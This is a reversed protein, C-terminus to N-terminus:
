PELMNGCHFALSFFVLIEQQKCLQAMHFDVSNICVTFLSLFVVFCGSVHNKGGLNKGALFSLLFVSTEM